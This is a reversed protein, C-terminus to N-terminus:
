GFFVLASGDDNPFSFELIAHGETTPLVRVGPTHWIEASVPHRTVYRFSQAFPSFAAVVGRGEAIKEHVEPSSGVYTPGTPAARSIDDRVRRYHHLVSRLLARGDLSVRSLEGWLGNHGLVMSAVNALQSSTPDDPLYHCLLLNSPIWRDFDTSARVARARAGGAYFLLNTNENEFGPIDFSTFYPGNNVLFFRGASLFSLGFSRGPETVDFDVVADPIESALRRAIETLVLPLQFSYSDAREQRTHSSDGHRHGPDDCGYQGVADWKFISVNTERYLRILQEVFYDAYESVLCMSVSAETECVERADARIGELSMQLNPRAMFVESTVAASTPGFWLGMRMGYLELRARVAALDASFREPNVRWDGTKTYWGTDIVFADVGIDHAADIEALITEERMPDLYRGGHWWMSREQMAWTNYFTESRRSGLSDPQHDLLFTRFEHAVDNVGGAVIGVHTWVSSYPLPQRDLYSGKRARLAVSETDVVVEVFPDSHSGHEYAVLVSHGSREIVFLPGAAVLSTSRGHSVEAPRYSHRHRDFDSFRVETLRDDDIRNVALFVMQDRGM